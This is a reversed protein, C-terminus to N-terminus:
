GRFGGRRGAADNHFLPIRDSIESSAEKLVAAMERIRDKRIRSSPGSISLGAVPRGNKLIPVGICRGGEMSEEDDVAYGQTKVKELEVALAQASSITSATLRKWNRIVPRENPPLWALIAKGISTAQVPDVIGLSGIVRISQQSEVTELYLVTEGDVKGLNVTEGLTDRLREMIPRALDRLSQRQRVAAGLALLKLGLSYRGAANKEVYSRGVLNSLLRHATSKALGSALVLEDLSKPEEEGQLLELLDFAKHLVAIGGTKEEIGTTPVAARSLNM